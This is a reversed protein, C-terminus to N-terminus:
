RNVKDRMDLEMQRIRGNHNLYASELNKIHDANSSISEQMGLVFITVAVVAVTFGIVFAYLQKALGIRDNIRRVQDDQVNQRDIMASAVIRQM